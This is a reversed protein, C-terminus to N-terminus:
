DDEVETYYEKCARKHAYITVGRACEEATCDGMCKEHYVCFRCEREWLLMAIEEATMNETLAEAFARASKEDEKDRSFNMPFTYGM